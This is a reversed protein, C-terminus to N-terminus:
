WIVWVLNIVILNMFFGICRENMRWYIRQWILIVLTLNVSDGIVLWGLWGMVNWVLVKRVTVHFRVFPNLEGDSAITGLLVRVERLLPWIEPNELVGTIVCDRGNSSLRTRHWVPKAGVLSHLVVDLGGDM